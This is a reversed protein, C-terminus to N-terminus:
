LGLDEYNDPMSRDTPERGPPSSRRMMQERMYMLVNANDPEPLDTVATSSAVPVGTSLLFKVTTEKGAPDYGTISVIDADDARVLVLAYDVLVNAVDDGALVSVASCTIRQM